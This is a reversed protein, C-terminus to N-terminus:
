DARVPRNASTTTAGTLQLYAFAGTFWDRPNALPRSGGTSQGLTALYRAIYNLNEDLPFGALRSELPPLNGTTFDASCPDQAATSVAYNYFDGEMQLYNYQGLSYPMLTNPNQLDWFLCDNMDDILPKRTDQIFYDFLESELRDLGAQM